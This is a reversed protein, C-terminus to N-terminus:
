GRNANFEGRLQEFNNWMHRLNTMERVANEMNFKQYKEVKPMHSENFYYDDEANHVRYGFTIDKIVKAWYFGGIWEPKHLVHRFIYNIQDTLEVIGNPIDTAPPLIKAPSLWTRRIDKM